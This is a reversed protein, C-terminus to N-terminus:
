TFFLRDCEGNIHNPHPAIARQIPLHALPTIASIILHVLSASVRRKALTSKAPSRSAARLLRALLNAM